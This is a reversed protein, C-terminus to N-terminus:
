VMKTEVPIQAMQNLYQIVDQESLYGLVDDYEIGLLSGNMKGHHDIPAIEYPCDDYGYGTNIISLSYGNKFKVLVRNPSDSEIAQILNDLQTQSQITNILNQM